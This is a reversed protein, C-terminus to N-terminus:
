QMDRVMHRGLYTRRAMQALCAPIVVIAVLVVVIM